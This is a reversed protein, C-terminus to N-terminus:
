QIYELKWQSVVSIQVLFKRVKQLFIDSAKRKLTHHRTTELVDFNRLLLKKRVEERM